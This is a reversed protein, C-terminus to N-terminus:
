CAFMSWMLCSACESVVDNLWVYMMLLEMWLVFSVLKSQIVVYRPINPMFLYHIHKMKPSLRLCCSVTTIMEFGPEQQNNIAM